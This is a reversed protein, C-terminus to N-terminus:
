PRVNEEGKGSRRGGEKRGRIAGGPVLYHGVLLEVSTIPSLSVSLHTHTHPNSQRVYPTKSRLNNGHNVFKQSLLFRYSDLILCRMHVHVIVYCLQSWMTCLWVYGIM